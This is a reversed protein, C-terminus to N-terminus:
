DDGYIRRERKEEAKHDWYSEAGVACEDCIYRWRIRAAHGPSYNVPNKETSEEECVDCKTLSM